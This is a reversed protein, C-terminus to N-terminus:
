AAPSTCNSLGSQLFKSVLREVPNRFMAVVRGPHEESLLTQIVASPSMTFLIDWKQSPVVKYEKAVAIKNPKSVIYSMQELCQFLSKMTTGASKPIHWFVAQERGPNPSSTLPVLNTQAWPYSLDKETQVGDDVGAAPALNQTPNKPLQEGALIRARRLQKRRQIARSLQKKKKEKLVEEEEKQAVEKLSRRGGVGLYQSANTEEDVLAFTILCLALIATAAVKSTSWKPSSQNNM